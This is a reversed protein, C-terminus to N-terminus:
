TATLEGLFLDVYTVHSRWKSLHGTSTGNSLPSKSSAPGKWFESLSGTYTKAFLLKVLQFTLHCNPSLFVPLFNQFNAEELPDKTLIELPM